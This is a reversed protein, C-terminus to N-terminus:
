SLVGDMEAQDAVSALLRIVWSLDSCLVGIASIFVVLTTALHFWSRGRQESAFRKTDRALQRGERM